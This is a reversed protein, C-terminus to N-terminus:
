EQEQVSLKPGPIVKGDSDRQVIDQEGLTKITRYVLSDQDYGGVKLIIDRVTLPSQTKVLQIIDEQLKKMVDPNEDFSTGSDILPTNTNKRKKYSDDGFHDLVLVLKQRDLRLIDANKLQNDINEIQNKAEALPDLDKKVCDAIFTVIFKGHSEAM